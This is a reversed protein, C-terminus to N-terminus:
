EKRFESVGITPETKGFRPEVAPPVDNVIVPEPNEAERVMVM